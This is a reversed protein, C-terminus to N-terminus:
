ESDIAKKVIRVKSLEWQEPIGVLACEKGADYGFPCESCNHKTCYEHVVRVANRFHELEAGQEKDLHHKFGHMVCDVTKRDPDDCCYSLGDPSPTSYYCTSCTKIESM